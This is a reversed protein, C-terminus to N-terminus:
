PKIFGMYDIEAKERAAVAEEYTDFRGLSTPKNNLCISAVWKQREDSWSVGTKGSSNNKRMGQNFNQTYIDAWRCNEPCYNGDVDIRDLTLGEGAYGMDELFSEFSNLWEDCVLIGRGGYRPYRKNNPNLCRAKMTKWSGYEYSNSAGHTVVRGEDLRQLGLCGCSQTKLKVLSSSPVLTENGCDCLCRWVVAGSRREETEGIVLLRNFREGLIDLKKGM